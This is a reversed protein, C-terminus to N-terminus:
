SHPFTCLPLLTNKNNEQKLAVGVAYPPEQDLPCIFARAAPSPWLGLLALDLGGRHGIGCSMAIGSGYGASCPWPHFRGEGPYQDSEKRSLWSPFESSTVKLCRHYILYSFKRLLWENLCPCTAISVTPVLYNPLFCM